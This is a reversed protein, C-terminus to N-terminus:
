RVSHLRIGEAALHAHFGRRMTRKNKKETDGLLILDPGYQRVLEVATKEPDASELVRLSWTLDAGRCRTLGQSMKRFLNGKFRETHGSPLNCPILGVLLFVCPETDAMHLVTNFLPVARNDDSIFALVRRKSKTSTNTSPISIVETDRKPSGCTRALLDAAEDMFPRDSPLYSMCASALERAPAPIDPSEPLADPPVQGPFLPRLFRKISSFATRGSLLLHLIAGFAYVDDGYGCEEGKLAEPSACAADGPTMISDTWFDDWHECRATGFDSIVTTDEGIRLCAPSLGRHAIGSKHLRALQDAFMAAVELRTQVPHAGQTLWEDLPIGEPFPMILGGRWEECPWAYGPTPPLPIFRAENQWRLFADTNVSYFQKLLYPKSRRRGLHHLNYRGRDLQGAILIGHISQATELPSPLSERLAANELASWM